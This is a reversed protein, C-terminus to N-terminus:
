PPSPPVHLRFTRYHKRVMQLIKDKPGFFLCLVRDPVGKRILEDREDESLLFHLM